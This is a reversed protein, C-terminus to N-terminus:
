VGPLTYGTRRGAATIWVRLGDSYIKGSYIGDRLARENDPEVPISSLMVADDPPSPPLVNKCTVM